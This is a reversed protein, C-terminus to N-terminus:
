SLEDPEGSTRVTHPVSQLERGQQEKANDPAEGASARTTWAETLDASRQAPHEPTADEYQDATNRWVGAMWGTPDTGYERLFADIASRRYRLSQGQNEAVPGRGLANLSDLVEASVSYGVLGSLYAAAESTSMEAEATPDDEDNADM